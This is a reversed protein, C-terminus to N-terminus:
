NIAKQIDIFKMLTDLAKQQRDIYTQMAERRLSISVRDNDNNNSNWYRQMVVARAHTTLVAVDDAQPHDLRVAGGRECIFRVNDATHLVYGVPGDELAARCVEINTLIVKAMESPTM